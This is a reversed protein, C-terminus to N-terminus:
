RQRHRRLARRPWILLDDASGPFFLVLARRDREVEGAGIQSGNQPVEVLDTAQVDDDIWGYRGRRDVDHKAVHRPILREFRQQLRVLQSVHRFSRDHSDRREGNERLLLTVTAFQCLRFRKGAIKAHLRERQAVRFGPVHRRQQHLRRERLASLDLHVGARVGDDDGVQGIAQLRHRCEKACEITGFRLDFHFRTDHLRRTLEGLCDANLPTQVAPRCLRMPLVVPRAKGFLPVSLPRVPATLEGFSLRAVAFSEVAVATLRRNRARRRRDAERNAGHVARKLM